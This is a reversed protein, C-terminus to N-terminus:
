IFWLFSVFWLFWGSMRSLGKSTRYSLAMREVYV